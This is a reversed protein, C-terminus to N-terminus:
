CLREWDNYKERIVKFNKPKDEPNLWRCVSGNSKYFFLLKVKVYDLGVYHTKYVRWKLDSNTATWM